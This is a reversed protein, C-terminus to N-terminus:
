GSVWRKMELKGMLVESARVSQLCRQAASKQGDRLYKRAEDWSKDRESKMKKIRDKVADVSNEAERFAKRRKRAQEREREKNSKFLDKLSM